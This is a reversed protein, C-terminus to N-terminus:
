ISDANHAKCLLASIVKAKPHDVGGQEELEKNYNQAGAAQEKYNGFFKPITITSTEPPATVTSTATSTMNCLNHFNSPIAVINSHPTDEFTVQVNKFLIPLKSETAFLDIANTAGM